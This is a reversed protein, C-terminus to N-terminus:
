DRDYITKVTEVTSKLPSREPPIGSRKKFNNLLVKLSPM